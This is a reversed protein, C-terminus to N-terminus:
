LGGEMLKIYTFYQQFPHLFQWAWGDMMSLNLQSVPYIYGGLSCLSFLYLLLASNLLVDTQIGSKSGEIGKLFEVFM